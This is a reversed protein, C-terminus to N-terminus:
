NNKFKKYLDILQFITKDGNTLEVGTDKIINKFDIFKQLEEEDFNNNIETEMLLKEKEESRIKIDKFQNLIMTKLKNDLKKEYEVPEDIISTLFIRNFEVLENFPITRKQINLKNLYKPEKFM